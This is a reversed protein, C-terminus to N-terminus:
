SEALLAEIMPVRPDDPAVRIFTEFQARAEDADGRARAVLGRLFPLDPSDAAVTGMRDLTATAGDLDGTRLQATALRAYASANAPQLNILLVLAAQARQLEDLTDGALYADALDSVAQPDRDNANFRELASAVRDARPDLTPNAIGVPRPLAFAVLLLGAILTGGALLSRRSRGTSSAPLPTAVRAADLEHLTVGAAAEAEARVAAYAAGDLSGARRDAEVDRLADLALRHRLELEDTRDDRQPAEDGPMLLPRAVVVGAGAIIFVLVLLEGLDPM